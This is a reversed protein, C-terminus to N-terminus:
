WPLSEFSTDIEKPLDYSDLNDLIEKLNNLIRIVECNSDLVYRLFELTQGDLSVANYQFIHIWISDVLPKLRSAFLFGKDKTVEFASLFDGNCTEGYYVLYNIAKDLITFGEGQPIQYNVDIFGVFTACIGHEVEFYRFHSPVAVIQTPNLTYM